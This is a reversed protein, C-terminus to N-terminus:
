PTARTGARERRLVLKGSVRVEVHATKIRHYIELEAGPPLNARIRRGVELVDDLTIPVEFEVDDLVSDIARAIPDPEMGPLVRPAPHITRTHRALM